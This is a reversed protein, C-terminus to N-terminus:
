LEHRLLYTDLEKCMILISTQFKNSVSDLQDDHFETMALLGLVLAEQYDLIKSNYLLNFKDGTEMTSNNWQVWINEPLGYPISLHHIAIWSSPITVNWETEM